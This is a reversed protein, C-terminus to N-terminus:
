AGVEGGGSPWGQSGIRSLKNEPAVRFCRRRTTGSCSVPSPYPLSRAGAKSTNTVFGCFRSFESLGGSPPRGPLRVALWPVLRTLSESILAIIPPSQASLFRVTVICRFFMKRTRPLNSFIPSGAQPINVLAAASFAPSINIIAQHCVAGWQGSRRIPPPTVPPLHPPHPGWHPTGSQGFQAEKSAQSEGQCPRSM